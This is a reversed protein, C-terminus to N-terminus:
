TGPVLGYKGPIFGDPSPVLFPPDPLRRATNIFTPPAGM